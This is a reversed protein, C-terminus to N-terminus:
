KEGRFEALALRLMCHNKHYIGNLLDTDYQECVAQIARVLELVKPEQALCADWGCYFGLKSFARVHLKHGGIRLHEQYDDWEKQSYEEAAEDRAKNM